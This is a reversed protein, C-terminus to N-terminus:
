CNVLSDVSELFKEMQFPKYHVNTFGLKLIEKLKPDDQNGTTIIVKLDALAPDKKIARCVGL